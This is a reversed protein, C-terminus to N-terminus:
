KELNQHAWHNIVVAAVQTAPQSRIEKHVQMVVVVIAKSPDDKAQAFGMFWDYRGAPDKGDLSGTKGGLNLAEFNKRAINKRSMHKRATGKEVARIMAQRLGYYTNDSFKGVDLAIRSSPAYPALNDAWPIELPQKMLIARVQAAALLPPLTIDETFGCSTEALGYGTDPPNYTARGPIGGPFNMNYGLNKASSRLKNAGVNMGIIALPANSSKAYADQLEITTGTYDEPVRLQSKYLTHSAGRMPIPTDLSYRGSEMAAAITVTKALSAAPFSNKVFYDPQNQVKDDRREGWAIIENTKANVVLVVGYDPKYRRLMQDIKEALFVNKQSKIHVSDIIEPEPANEPVIEAVLTAQTNSLDAQHEQEREISDAKKLEAIKQQFEQSEQTATEKKPTDQPRKDEHLIAAGIGFAILVLLAIAIIRNRLRKRYPLRNTTSYYHKM